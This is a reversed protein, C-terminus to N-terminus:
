AGTTFGGGELILDSAVEIKTGDQWGELVNTYNYSGHNGNRAWEMQSNSRLDVDKRSRIIGLSLVQYSNDFLTLMTPVSFTYDGKSSDFSLETSLLLSDSGIGVSEDVVFISSLTSEDVVGTQDAIDDRVVLRVFGFIHNRPPIEDVQPDAFFCLTYIDGAVLGCRAAYDAITEEASLAMPFRLTANPESSTGPTITFFAQVLSGQSIIYRGAVPAVAKPGVFLSCTQAALQESIEQALAERLAAMNRRMFERQNDMGTAYGEFSHDFIAYGARYAQAITAVIARQYIQAASRPNAPKRNRARAVQQGNARYLVVDGVSGRAYGLFLNGKSM